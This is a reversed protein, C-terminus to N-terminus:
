HAASLPSRDNAFHWASVATLHRAMQGHARTSLHMQSIRKDRPHPRREFIGKAELWRINRLATTAPVGSADCLSSVSIVRGEEAAIFLELTMMWQPDQFTAGPFQDNRRGILEVMARAVATLHASTRDSGDNSQSREQMEDNRKLCNHANM